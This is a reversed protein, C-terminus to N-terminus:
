ENIKINAIRCLERITDKSVYKGDLEVLDQTEGTFIDQNTLKKIIITDGDQYMELPERTDMEFSRRLEIPLTVRGLQDLKRVIGTARM